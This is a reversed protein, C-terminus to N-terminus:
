PNLCVGGPFWLSVPGPWALLRCSQCCFCHKLVWAVCGPEHCAASAVRVSGVLDKWPLAGSGSRSRLSAPWTRSSSKLWSMRSSRQRPEWADGSPLFLGVPLWVCRRLFLGPSAVGVKDWLLALTGSSYALKPFAFSPCQLIQTVCKAWSCRFLSLKNTKRKKLFCVPTNGPIPVRVNCLGTSPM